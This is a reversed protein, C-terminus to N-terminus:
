FPYGRIWVRVNEAGQIRKTLANWFVFNFQEYNVVILILALFIEM